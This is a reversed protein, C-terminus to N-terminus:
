IKIKDIDKGWPSCKHIGWRSEIKKRGDLIKPILGWSKKMIAVHDMDIPNAFFRISM